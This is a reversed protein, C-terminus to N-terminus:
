VALCELKEQRIEPNSLYHVGNRLIRRIDPHFYARDTEHGPQFYFVKGYGRNWVCGSRIVEGGAFGGIFILEDPRPIDFYEGYMEEHDLWICAPVGKAIPHAPDCCWLHEQDADRWRLTCSTGLLLRMPKCMHSSHLFMVGMGRQVHDRVRRAVEDPVREHAVHAWWLLVDTDRLVEETLGCEPLKLHALHCVRIDESEELLDKLTDHIAKGEHTKRIDRAKEAMRRLVDEGWDKLFPFEEDGVQEQVYENYITVRIM